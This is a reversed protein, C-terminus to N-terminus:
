SAPFATTPQGAANRRAILDEMLEMLVFGLDREIGDSFTHVWSIQEGIPVIQEFADFHGQYGIGNHTSNWPGRAPDDVVDRAGREHRSLVNRYSNPTGDIKVGSIDAQLSNPDSM